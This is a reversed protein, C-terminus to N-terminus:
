GLSCDTALPARRWERGRPPEVVAFGRQHTAAHTGQQTTDRDNYAMKLAAYNGDDSVAHVARQLRAWHLEGGSM